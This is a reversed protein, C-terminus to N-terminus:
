PLNMSLLLTGSQSLRKCWAIVVICVNWTSTCWLTQGIRGCIRCCSSGWASPLCVAYIVSYVYLFNSFIYLVPCAFCRMVLTYFLYIRVYFVLISLSLMLLVFKWLSTALLVSSSALIADCVVHWLSWSHWSHSGAPLIMDCGDLEFREERSLLINGHM